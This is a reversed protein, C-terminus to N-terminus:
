GGVVLEGFTLGLWYTRLIQRRELGFFFGGGGGGIGERGSARTGLRASTAFFTEFTSRDGAGDPEAM